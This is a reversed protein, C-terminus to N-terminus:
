IFNAVSNRTVSVRHGCRRSRYDVVPRGPVVFLEGPVAIIESVHRWSDARMNLDRYTPANTDYLSPFGSVALILKHEM